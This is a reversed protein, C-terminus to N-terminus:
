FAYKIGFQLIRPSGGTAYSTIRGFQAQNLNTAPNGWNFNNTLNFSELRVELNRTSGLPILRSV